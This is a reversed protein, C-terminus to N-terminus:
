SSTRPQFRLILKTLTREKPTGEIEKLAKQFTMPNQYEKEIDNPVGMNKLLKGINTAKMEDPKEHVRYVNPLNMISMNYAITENAQLMFDEILKEAKDRERLTINKPSGDLNLEFRYEPVDFELAGKKSRINRIKESLEVMNM